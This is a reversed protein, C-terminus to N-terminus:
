EQSASDPDGGLSQPWHRRLEGLAQQQHRRVEEPTWHCIGQVREAGGAAVLSLLGFLYDDGGVSALPDSHLREFITAIEAEADPRALVHSLAEVYEAETFGWARQIVTPDHM